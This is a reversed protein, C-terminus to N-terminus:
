FNAWRVPRQAIVEPATYLYLPRSVTSSGAAILDGDVFAPIVEALELEPLLPYSVSPM